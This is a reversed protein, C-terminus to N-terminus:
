VLDGFRRVLLNINQDLGLIHEVDLVVFRRHLVDITSWSDPIKVTEGIKPYVYGRYSGLIIPKSDKLVITIKFDM